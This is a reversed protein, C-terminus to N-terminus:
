TKRTSWHLVLPEWLLSYCNPLLRCIDVHSQFWSVFSLPKFFSSLQNPSRKLEEWYSSQNSGKRKVGLTEGGGGDLCVTLPFRAHAWIVVVFNSFPKGPSLLLVLPESSRYCISVLFLRRYAWKFKGANGARELLLSLVLITSVFAFLSIDVQINVAQQISLGKARHGFVKGSIILIVFTPEVWGERLDQAKNM